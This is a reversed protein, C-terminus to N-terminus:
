TTWVSRRSSRSSTACLKIEAPAGFLAILLADAKGIDRKKHLDAEPHLQLAVTRAVDKAKRTLGAGTKWTVPRVLHIQLGLVQATAEVTGFGRGFNFASQAGMTRRKGNKGPLSPMANVWEIVALEPQYERLLAAIGPASPRRKGGTDTVTPMDHLAVLRRGEIFALGGTV